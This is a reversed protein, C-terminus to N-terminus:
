INANKIEKMDGFNKGVRVNVKYKGLATDSFMNIIDRINYCEDETMDLVLNDHICFSVFSKKNDLFGDVKLMQRLLLDSTTSQIIYNLAHHEDAPITRDFITRVQEGTFYKQVVGTRNYAAASLDDTSEPNYLWAFIRKKAEERNLRDGYVNRMNWEHLDESPQESGSLALLTRLEAANFDLEVFWDNQPRIVKRFDKDMTLIPFSNKKTTLRGTKTGFINYRIEPSTNLMKKWFTRAKTKHIESKLVDPNINLKRQEIKSVVRALDVMFKYNEPKSINEFVHECILNKVECYEELFRSPVLDYFCNEELSVGSQIFSNIFAKLKSEVDDLHPLINEPCADRLSRGGVYLQAYEIKGNDFAPKYNWTKTLGQPVDGYILSDGCYIGVCHEKDDLAQFLM